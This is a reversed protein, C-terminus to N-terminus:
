KKEIALHLKKCFNIVLEFNSNIKGYVIIFDREKLNRYSWDAMNDFAKIKIITSNNLKINFYSISTNKCRKLSKNKDIIFKFSIKSTIQGSFFCINM